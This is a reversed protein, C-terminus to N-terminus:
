WWSGRQGRWGETANDAVAARDPRQWRGESWDQWGTAPDVHVSHWRAGSGSAGSSRAAAAAYSTEAEADREAVATGMQTQAGKGATATDTDGGKKGGKRGGKKGGTAKALQAQKEM